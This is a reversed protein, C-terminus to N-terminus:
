RVPRVPPMIGCDPFYLGPAFAPTLALMVAITYGPIDRTRVQTPELPIPWFTSYTPGSM